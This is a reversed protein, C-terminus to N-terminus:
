QINVEPMDVGGTINVIGGDNYGEAVVNFTAYFTSESMETITVTGSKAKYFENDVGHMDLEVYGAGDEDCQYTGPVLLGSQGDVGYTNVSVTLSYIPDGNQKAGFFILDGAEYNFHLQQDACFDTNLEGSVTAWAIGNCESPDESDEKECSTSMLTTLGIVVCTFLIIKKFNM